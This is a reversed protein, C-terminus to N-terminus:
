SRVPTRGSPRPLLAIVALALLAVAGGVVLALQFGALSPATTGDITTTMAALVVGTVASAGSTGISRVLTNFSTASATEGVPVAGMILMPIAGYALGVGINIVMISGMIGWTSGLLLLSAGYGAAVGIAGLALTTKAGRAATLRAGFPSVVMMVVGGPVLWLAMQLMSQGHGYGTSAPLQLLQPLILSQGYMAFGIMLSALNTLAVQPNRLSRLNVLPQRAHVQQLVWFGLLFVAAAFLGLTVPSDWGWTAGKSIPLLLAALGGSLLLAGPLDFRAGRVRGSGPPVLWLVLILTVATLAAFVAFMIRWSAYEAITAAFPLAIAGGVGMSASMTAVASGIREPPVVERLLSIGLPVVGMGLGQLARGAIMLDLSGAVACLMSGAALPILSALLVRRKGLMDGLRGAIPVAVAAALLTATVAWATDDPAADLIGPLQGLLPVILTQTGAAIIGAVALVAVIATPPRRPSTAITESSETKKARQITTTM